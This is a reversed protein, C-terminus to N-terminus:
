GIGGSLNDYLWQHSDTPAFAIWSSEEVQFVLKNAKPILENAKQQLTSPTFRGRPDVIIWANALHHWFGVGPKTVRLWNTFADREAQTADVDVVLVFVKKM